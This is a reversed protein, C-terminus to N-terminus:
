GHAKLKENARNRYGYCLNGSQLDADFEEGLGRWHLPLLQETDGESLASPRHCECGTRAQWLEEWM